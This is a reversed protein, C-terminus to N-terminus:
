TGSIASAIANAIFTNLISTVGLLSQNIPLTYSSFAIRVATLGATDGCNSLAFCGALCLGALLRARRKAFLMM